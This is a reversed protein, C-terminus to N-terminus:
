KITVEDFYMWTRQGDRAYGQPICGPNIAVFKVYRAKVDIKGCDLEIKKSDKAFIDDKPTKLEKLLTYSTGNESVYVYVTHPAAMCVMNNSFAGLSIQKLQKVAQLDVVFEANADYWGAWEWDSTRDSGRLGNTLTYALSNNCEKAKVNMGTALNKALDLTLEKGMPKGDAYTVARIKCAKDITVVGSYLNSHMSPATGDTTYRIEMDPRECTLKVTLKGDKPEVKHQINYMSKAYIVNANDLTPLYADLAELFGRWDASGQPRWAMDAMAMVRPFLLYEVDESTKCFETWISAQVGWLNKGVSKDKFGDFPEYSYVDKLTNNGYYTYPEFWQPGQYRILYMTRAPTLVFKNGHKQSYKTAVNGTGQWGFLVIDEEPQGYTVEDWGIAKRGKGQLYRNVRDMFYGQLKEVDTIGLEKMRAQCLPCKKWHSKEAEDGGIHIYESPFIKLVEDLIDQIMTFVQDNGACMIVSAMSGGIGPLVGVFKGDLVPCALEPYSAISAIAHAPMEIEPIVTMQRATAYKVIEKLEKQTYFGGETAEEGPQQNKRGPFIEDRHVRWAGVSTLKPYKKIEVRWGNDDTLHMHLKNLKLASAVDIIRLVEDKPIFYRVVDLMLGRYEFRPEDNITCCEIAKGEGARMLQVLTQTAYFFGRADCAKITISKESVELSYAEACMTADVTMTVDAGKKSKKVKVGANGAQEAFLEVVQKCDAPASIKLEEPITFSGNGNVFKAPQPIIGGSNAWSSMTAAFALIISIIIKYRHM